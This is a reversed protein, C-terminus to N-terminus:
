RGPSATPAAPESSWGAGWFKARANEGIAGALLTQYQTEYTAGGAPDNSVAGFNRQFEMVFIMSAQLLLDPLWTSIFTTSTAAPGNTAFSALSPMRITGFVTLMYAQDAGPGFQVNNSVTGGTARDGGIMAFYQPPGNSASTSYVNQLWEQTTPLLPPLGPATVNLLTVFDGTPIAITDANAALTYANSSRSPLLDLDRQLRLEAYNLAQPILATFYDDVGQVVGSVTQTQLVALIGLQTVYGNYTLANPTAM